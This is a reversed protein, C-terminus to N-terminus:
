ALYESRDYQELQQRQRRRKKKKPGKLQFVNNPNPNSYFSKLFDIQGNMFNNTRREEFVNNVFLYLFYLIVPMVLTLIRTYSNTLTSWIRIVESEYIMRTVICNSLTLSLRLHASACGLQSRMDPDSCLENAVLKSDARRERQCTLLCENYRYVAFIGFFLILLFTIASM